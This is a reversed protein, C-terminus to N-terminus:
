SSGGDAFSREIAPLLRARIAELTEEFAEYPKGDPDEFGVHM